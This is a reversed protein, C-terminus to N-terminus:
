NSRLAKAIAYPPISAYGLLVARANQISASEYAGAAAVTYLGVGNAAAIRVGEEAKPFRKPLVWM